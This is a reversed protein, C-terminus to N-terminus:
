YNRFTALTRTGHSRRNNLFHSSWVFHASLIPFFLFLSLSSDTMSDTLLTDPTTFSYYYRRYYMVRSHPDPRTSDGFLSRVGDDEKM